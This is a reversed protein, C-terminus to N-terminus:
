GDCTKLVLKIVAPLNWVIEVSPINLDDHTGDNDFPDPAKETLYDVLIVQEPKLTVTPERTSNVKAQEEDPPAELTTPNAWYLLIEPM